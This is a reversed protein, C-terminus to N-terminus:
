GWPGRRTGPSTPPPSGGERALEAERRAKRGAEWDRFWRSWSREGRWAAIWLTLAMLLFALSALEEAGLTRGFLTM